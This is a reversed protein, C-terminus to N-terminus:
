QQVEQKSQVKRGRVRGSQSRAWELAQPLCDARDILRLLEAQDTRREEDLAAQKEEELRAIQAALKESKTM